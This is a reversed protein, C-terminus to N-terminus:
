YNGIKSFAVTAAAVLFSQLLFHAFLGIVFNRVSNVKWDELVGAPDEQWEFFLPHAAKINYTAEAQQVALRYYDRDRTKMLRLAAHARPSRSHDCRFDARTGSCCDKGVAWFDYTAVTENTNTIPAVCYINKNRFGMSRSVDLKSDATFVISGADLLQQGRMRSPDIGHYENLAVVQHYTQTYLKFNVTGLVVGLVLALFLTASQFVMWSPEREPDGSVRVMTRAALAVRTHVAIAVFIVVIIFYCLGAQKHHLQFSLLAFTILFVFWPLFLSMFIAMVNLRRRQGRVFPHLKDKTSSLGPSLSSAGGLAGYPGVTGYPTMGPQQPTYM